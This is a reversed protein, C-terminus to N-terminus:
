EVEPNENFECWSVPCYRCFFSQRPVPDKRENEAKHILATVRPWADVGRVDESRAEGHEVYVWRFRTHEIGHAWNLAAYCDAQLSDPRVKGTKWDIDLATAPKPAPFYEVALDIKGRLVATPSSWHTPQGHINMAYALEPTVRVQEDPQRAELKLLYDFLGPPLKDCGSPMKEPDPYRQELLANELEKHLAI